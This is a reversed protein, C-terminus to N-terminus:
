RFPKQQRYSQIRAEAAQAANTQGAAEALEKAKSAAAIADGFRGAAAYAVDLTGWYRAQKGETLQCAREALRVAEPGNRLDPRPHTALLWALANLADPWSPKLQVAQQFQGIAQGLEGQETLILGLNHHAEANTPALRTLDRFCDAAQILRGQKMLAEALCALAETDGPRLRCVARFHTIAEDFQGRSSLALGLNFHADAFEPDCRLAAAYEALAEEQKGQTWLRTALHNHLQEAWPTAKVAHQYLEFAEQDKGQSELIAGIETYAAAFAPDANVAARFKEMAKDTQGQDRYAIGVHYYALANDHTVELAHEFVTFDSRWYQVQAHTLAASALLVCTGAGALLARGFRRQGVLEAAGWVVCVFTGILPIYTYRDAMAQGGVQVIGIVPVLTVLYWCWGMLCWPARARGLLALGSLLALGCAAVLLLWVPMSQVGSALTWPHPYFIALHKPWAALGLYKWYSLLANAIRQSVPLELYMARQSQQVFFTVVSSLAALAFFPLKERVLGKLQILWRRALPKEVGIAASNLGTPHSLRQLPWYDLLLMVVPTTIVMPKSMLALAFLGLTLGYCRRPHDLFRMTQSASTSAVSNEASTTELDAKSRAASRVYGVYAILTLIFFFTSLVDKRESAWAVSEVHLPHLAFLAAVFFSRWPAGTMRQFLVLLLIANATHILLNVFHHWAPRLGFLQVDLMHSVWTVPHWNGQYGTRFAWGINDWNIGTVVHPNRLVYFGDDFKIFENQLIPGFSVLTVAGLLIPLVLPLRLQRIRTM